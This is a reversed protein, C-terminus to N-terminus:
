IVRLLAAMAASKTNKPSSNSDSLPRIKPMESSVKSGDYAVRCLLCRPSSASSAKIRLAALRPYATDLGPSVTFTVVKDNAEAFHEPAHLYFRDPGFVRSPRVISKTRCVRVFERVGRLVDIEEGAVNKRLVGPVNKGRGDDFISLRQANGWVGFARGEFFEAFGPFQHLLGSGVLGRGLSYFHLPPGGPGGGFKRLLRGRLKAQTFSRM